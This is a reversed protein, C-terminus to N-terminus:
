SPEPRFSFGAQVGLQRGDSGGHDRPSFTPTVLLEVRFPTEVQLRFSKQAGSRATWRLTRVPPAIRPQQSVCTGSKCPDRIDTLPAPVLRGVRVEVKGPVDPGQWAIRSLTLELTGREGRGYRSYAAEHGIWGDPYRGTIGSRLRLLGDLRILRWLGTREVETGFIDVGDSDTVVYQVGPDNVTAGDGRYPLIPVTPGPGPATGDLSGVHEVSRNWFETTLIPNPDAIGQGLYLVSADDEVTADIWRPPEPVASRLRNGLDNIGDGFSIEGVVNWSIVGAALLSAVAAHAVKVRQLRVLAVTVGAVLAILILLRLEIAADDLALSRNLEALVALGPADSYPYHDLQYPTERVLYVLLAGGALLALPTVVPRALVLAASVFLLPALYILNREVVVDAFVTSLYVAKVGAYLVFAPVAGALVAVFARYEPSSRADKPRWLVVAAALAPFLGTGIVLAGVSWVTFDQWREPLTTALYYLFSERKGLEHVVGAFAVVLAVAAVWELRGWGARMRYAAPSLWLVVLAALAFAPILLQLQERVEGAVVVALFAAPLWRSLPAVLARAMLLFCLAAFPYALPESLLLRSYALAPISTAGVAAFLAPWHGVLTRALWYVPFLAASMLLAGLVKAADYATETNSTLWWIPALVYPYLSTLDYPEGRRAPEGTEAIARSLQTYEIEDSFLWPSGHSRAQWWYVVVLFAYCAVLQIAVIGRELRVSARRGARLPTGSTVATTV